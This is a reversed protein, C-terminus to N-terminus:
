RVVSVPGLADTEPRIAAHRWRQPVVPCWGSAGRRRRGRGRGCAVGRRDAGLVSGRCAAPVESSGAVEVESPGSSGSGASSSGRCVEMVLHQSSWNFGGQSGADSHHILQGRGIPHGDHDRQWIAMRLPTMVLDTVKSTAAHWAVVRQAYVDVIFAVYVFGAWTRVYTFDTVWVRNPAAATFDRNLLDKARHGDKGPITTRHKRARRIGNHGLARMATDVRDKSVPGHGTRALLATMKRRGYLGEPRLRFRGTAGDWVFALSYVANMLYAMALSQGSVAAVGARSARYTRAAVQVGQERLVRCVSEVSRGARQQSRIFDM